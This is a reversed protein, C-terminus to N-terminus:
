EAKEREAERVVDRFVRIFNGGWIKRIDEEGYGRRLLEITINPMESVDDCGIVGGGGDFDTGIGVHDIGVLKVVHDIHDVVDQVTAKTEPYEADIAEWEQRLQERVKPDRIQSWPGYKERLRQLAAERERNPRTEKVYASLICMQMVGGKEALRKLMEDSLNRPNNCLVRACSHSAIVPARSAELVDYFTEDSVHSVDVIMGLRNMEAVVQKGFESLGHHEPGKQDTSSDCIDNNSTHCLTVYRAGLDYYKKLLSLDKGIAYGNEIGIFIARKGTAEIRYADEPSTALEALEPYRACMGHIAQFLKLAQEQARAYGEPTRPGQAVFVAFFQADLGGEKMRPLDVKGSGRQGPQHRVGPDWGERLLNLPADCHSDLTLVQEHILRARAVLDKESLPVQATLNVTLGALALMTLKAHM